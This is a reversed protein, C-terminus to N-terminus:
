RASPQTLIWELISRLDTKRVFAPSSSSVARSPAIPRSSDPSFAAPSNGVGDYAQAKLFKEQFNPNHLAKVFEAHLRDISGRWSAHKLM